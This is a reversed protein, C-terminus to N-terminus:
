SIIIKQEHLRSIAEIISSADRLYLSFGGSWDLVVFPIQSTMCFAVFFCYWWNPFFYNFIERQRLDLWIPEVRPHCLDNHKEIQCENWMRYSLKEINQGDMECILLYKPSWDSGVMIRSFNCIIEVAGTSNIKM